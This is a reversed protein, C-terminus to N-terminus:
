RRLVVLAYHGVVRGFPPPDADTTSTSEGGHDVDEGEPEKEGSQDAPQITLLL